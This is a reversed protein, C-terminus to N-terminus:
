RMDGKQSYVQIKLHFQIKDTSTLTAVRQKLIASVFHSDIEWKGKLASLENWCLETRTYPKIKM